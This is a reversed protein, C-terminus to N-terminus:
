DQSAAGEALWHKLKEMARARHSLQHKVEAPLQGFSECHGEPIFLPDYGFGSEGKEENAIIGEVAGDFTALIKEDQAVVLVCRFRGTRQKGRAGNAVLEAILKRRNDADTAGEGAYRASWVGPRRDLADVEIGSDDALVLAGPMAASAALAKIAANAEFTTGTEEPPTLEPFASLDIIEDFGYGALMHAIEGTKHANHTAVILTKGSRSSSM